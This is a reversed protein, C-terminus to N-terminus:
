SDLWEDFTKLPRTNGTTVDMGSGNDACQLYIEYRNWLPHDVDHIYNEPLIDANTNYLHRISM